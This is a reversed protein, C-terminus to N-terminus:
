YYLQEEEGSVANSVWESLRAYLSKVRIFTNRGKAASRSRNLEGRESAKHSVWTAIVKEDYIIFGNKRGVLRAARGSLRSYQSKVGIFTKGGRPLQVGETM